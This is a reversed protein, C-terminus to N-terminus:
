SGDPFGGRHSVMPYWPLRDPDALAAAFGNRYPPNARWGTSPPMMAETLLDRRATFEALLRTLEPSASWGSALTRYRRQAAMGTPTLRVQRGRSPGPEVVALATRELQGVSVSVAEKSVGALLPLEKLLMESEGLVRLVNAALAIPLPSREEYWARFTLLAGCLRSSLDDPKPFQSPWDLMPERRVGSVPLYPSRLSHEGLANKLAAIPATGFRDCWRQEIEDALGSFVAVARRGATTPLLSAGSRRIYRWRLLGGLNVLPALPALEAEARGAGIHALFNTWMAQSVLWPGAGSHAQPGTATTHPMRSEFANDFEITFSVLLQSMQAPLDRAM